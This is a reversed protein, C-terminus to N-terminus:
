FVVALLHHLSEAFAEVLDDLAVLVKALQEGLDLLRIILIQRLKRTLALPCHGILWLLCFFHFLLRYALHRVRGGVRNGHGWWLLRLVLYEFLLEVETVQLDLFELVLIFGELVLHSM